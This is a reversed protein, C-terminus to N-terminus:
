DRWRVWGFLVGAYWVAALGALWGGWRLAAVVRRSPEKWGWGTPSRDIGVWRVRYYTDNRRVYHTGIEWKATATGEDVARQVADPVASYNEATARRLTEPSVEVFRLVLEGDEITANGRYIGSEMDYYTREDDFYDDPVATLNWSAPGGDTGIVNGDALYHAVTCTPSQPTEAGCHRIEAETTGGFPPYSRQEARYEYRTEYSVEEPYLWAGNALLLVGVLLTLAIRRRPGLM